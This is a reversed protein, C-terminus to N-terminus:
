LPLGAEQGRGEGLDPFRKKMEGIVFSEIEDFLQLLDAANGIAGGAPDGLPMMM